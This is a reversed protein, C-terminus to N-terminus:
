SDVKEREIHVEIQDSEDDTRSRKGAFSNNSQLNGMAIRRTPAVRFTSMTGISM